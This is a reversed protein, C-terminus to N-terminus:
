AVRLGAGPEARARAVSSASPPIPQFGDITPVRVPRGAGYLTTLLNAQLPPADGTDEYEGPM